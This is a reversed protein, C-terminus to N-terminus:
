SNKLVPQIKVFNEPKRIIEEIERARETRNRINLEHKYMVLINRILNIEEGSLVRKIEVRAGKAIRFELDSVDFGYEPFLKVFVQGGTMGSCLFPGPDGLVVAVGGTMYEFAFGKLSANSALSIYGRPKNSFSNFKSDVVIMGGSFRIGFRSDAYGNIVFFGNQSGYAFCKGVSGGIMKGKNNTTKLVLIKGGSSSKGVGDQACGEVVIDVKETNFAGLGNGPTAGGNLNIIMRDLNKVWPDEMNRFIIGATHTGLARDSSHVLSDSYIVRRANKKSLTDMAINSIARTLFHVPRKLLVQEEEVFYPKQPEEILEALEIGRHSHLFNSRGVAELVSKFGLRALEIRLAEGMLTFIRVLNDVAYEFNLPHFNRIGKIKAEKLDKVQTAIGMFCDGTHCSRCMSCGIAVMALSGFGVRNAGLLIMKLADKVTKMGGDCWIEVNQRLGNKVLEKHAEKVGIEIPIGAYRLAHERAAGTGGEYGSIDIIDAGAKAIGVAIVGIGPVAPVKVSIKASPNAVKLEYIIQALDEISYIDHNNSPSILDVYSPTHRTTAVKPSVKTGPLMGGEGPKAGQGIKIEILFSSNLYELNVGFRGSAVQEGRNYYYKGILDKLEGGEGNIAVINLKRAAEAFAKFAIEGQSGFSMAPIFFPLDHTGVSLIVDRPDLGKEPYDIYLVHRISTPTENEITKAIKEFFSYPREGRAVAQLPKWLKQWMRIPRVRDRKMKVRERYGREIEEIGIGVDKLFGTCEFIEVLEENLGFSSFNKGYGRLEHTGMTSIIEELGERLAKILNRIRDLRQNSNYNGKLVVQYLGYPYLSDAGQAIYFIADHLDRIGASSVLISVKRRLNKDRFERRLAKEVSALALVPDIWINDPASFAKSDNLILLNHGENVSKLAMVTVEEITERLTKGEELFVDLVKFKFLNKLESITITRNERAVSRFEDPLIFPIGAHIVQSEYDDFDPREGLITETSFMEKERARDIAPNTVVAVKEQFFEPINPYPKRLFAMPGDFGTSGIPEKGLKALYRAFRINRREWGAMRLEDEGLDINVEGEKVPLIEMVFNKSEGVRHKLDDFVQDQIEEYTLIKINDGHIGVIGIKEGPALPKPERIMNGLPLVGIESSFFIEKETEGFWLPRLGLVDVMGLLNSGNRAIIAVPGQAYPGWIERLRNYFRKYPEDYLGIEDPPPPFIMEAAEFLSLGKDYIFAEFITNIDESDSSDKKIPIGFAEAERRLKDITNIEGNHSIISFPQAREFTAFTNTAYRIHGISVVSEYDTRMLEPYYRILTEVGGRVKYVVSDRSMSVVHVPFSREIKVKLRYLLFPINLLPIKEVFGAIQWFDPEFERGLNGLFSNDVIGRQYLLVSINNESLLGGIRQIIGEAEFKYNHNIFFHAVFFRPSEAFFPEIGNRSLYDRWVKRPIDTMIGAGDSEAEIEGSRHSMKMLADLLRRVNGHTPKGGKRVLSIIACM